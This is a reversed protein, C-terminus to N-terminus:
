ESEAGTGCDIQLTAVVHYLGTVSVSFFGTSTNYTIGNSLINNYIIATDSTSLEVNQDTDTATRVRRGYCYVSNPRLNCDNVSINSAFLDTMTVYPTTARVIYIAPEATGDDNQDTLFELRNMSSNFRISAGNFYEPNTTTFGDSFIIESAISQGNQGNLRVRINSTGDGIELDSNPNSNRIGVNNNFHIESGNNTWQSSVKANNTSVNSNITDLNVAGTVSINDVLNKIETNDYQKVNNIQFEFTKSTPVNLKLNGEDDIKISGHTNALNGSNLDKHQFCISTTDIDGIRLNGYLLFNSQININNIENRISDLNTAGTVTVNDILNKIQTNNYQFVNNIRFEYDQGTPVNMRLEGNETVRISYDTTSLNGSNLNAHQIVLQNPSSEGVLLNTHELTTNGLKLNNTLTPTDTFTISDVLNKIQTNNYQLVNNIRFEYDQGTPVNLRLEGNNTVRISYDTTSLNGSNIDSHQIILQSPSQEGVLLKNHKFTSADLTINDVLNKVQTSDFQTVANVDFNIKKSTFANIHTDGLPKQYIISEAKTFNLDDNYDINVYSGIGASYIDDSVRGM